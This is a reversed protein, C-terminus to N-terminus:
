SGRYVTYSFSNLLLPVHYHESPDRVVFNISIQPFLYEINQMLFYPGTEFILRYHGAVFAVRESLLDNIRGDADSVGQAIIQWVATHTKHELIVPIGAGPKGTTTDLIHTTISSM